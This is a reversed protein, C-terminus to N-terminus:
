KAEDRSDWLVTSNEWFESLDMGESGFSFMAVTSHDNHKRLQVYGTDGESRYTFTEAYVGYSEHTGIKGIDLSAPFGSGCRVRDFDKLEM